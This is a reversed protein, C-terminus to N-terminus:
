STQERSPFKERFKHVKQAKTNETCNVCCFPVLSISLSSILPLLTSQNKLEKLCRKLNWDDVVFSLNAAISWYRIFSM